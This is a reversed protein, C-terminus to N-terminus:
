NMYVYIYGYMCAKKMICQKLYTYYTTITHPCKKLIKQDMITHKKKDFVVYM